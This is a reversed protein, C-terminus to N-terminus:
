QRTLTCKPGYENTGREFSSIAWDAHYAIDVLAKPVTTTESTLRCVTTTGDTDVAELTPLGELTTVFATTSMQGRGVVYVSWCEYSERRLLLSSHPEGQLDSLLTNVRHVTIGLQDACEIASIATPTEYTERLYDHLEETDTPPETGLIRVSDLLENSHPSVLGEETATLQLHSGEETEVVITDARREIVTVVGAHDDWTLIHGIDLDTATLPSIGYQLHNVTM